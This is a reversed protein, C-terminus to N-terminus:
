SNATAPVKESVAIIFSLADEGQVEQIILSERTNEKTLVGPGSKSVCIVKTQVNKPFHLSFSLGSDPHQFIFLTWYDQTNFFSNLMVQSEEESVLDRWIGPDLRFSNVTFSKLPDLRRDEGDMETERDTQRDTQRHGRWRDCCFTRRDECAQRNVTLQHQM